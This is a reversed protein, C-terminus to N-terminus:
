SEIERTPLWQPPIALRGIQPDSGPVKLNGVHPDSNHKIIREVEQIRKSLSNDEISKIGKRLAEENKQLMSKVVKIENGIHNYVEKRLTDEEKRLTDETNKIEKRLVEVNKQSLTKVAKIESNMRDYVTKLIEKASEKVANEISEVAKNVYVTVYAQTTADSANRPYGVKTLRKSQLDYNNDDTLKFGIGPPGRFILNKRVASRRGFKDLTNNVTRM